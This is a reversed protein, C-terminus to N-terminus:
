PTSITAAFATDINQYLDELSGNNHLTYDGERPEIGNESSHNSLPIEPADKRRVHWLSGIKRVWEAENEFRVDTIVIADHEDALAVLKVAMVNIWLDQHISRGWETGLTQALQRYSAGIYPITEEKREVSYRATVGLGLEIMDRIPDAFALQTMGYRKCLYHAITDKGQRAKGALGIIRPHTM